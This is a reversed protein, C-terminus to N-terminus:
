TAMTGALFHARITVLRRSFHFVIDSYPSPSFFHFTGNKVFTQATCCSCQEPPLFLFFSPSFGLQSASVTAVGSLYKAGPFDESSDRLERLVFLTM